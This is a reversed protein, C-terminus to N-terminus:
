KEDKIEEIPHTFYFRAGEKYNPDLWIEGGLRTIIERSIALGLGVGPKHPDSKSFREFLQGEEQSSIGSGSDTISFLLYSEDGEKITSYYLEIFGEETFKNANSLLNLLVQLLRQGDTLLTLPEKPAKFRYEVSKKRLGSFTALAQRCLESLNVPSLKFKVKEAELISFDLVDDILNILLDCNQTIISAALEREREPLSFDSTLNSFGVIANLPTRIEHSINALFAGKVRNSEEAMEKAEKLRISNKELEVRLKQNRIYIATIALIFTLLNVSIVSIIVLYLRYKDVIPDSSNIITSHLPLQSLTIGREKLVSDDFQYRRGHTVFRVSGSKGEGHEIIQTVINSASHTFNPIFGGLAGTGLGAGTLTFLPLDKRGKTVERLSSNALYRGSKSIRWTGVLIASNIPALAIEEKIENLTLYTADLFHYNFPPLNHITRKILAKIAQGGYTNDSLLYIDTTKPYLSKVLEVCRHPSFTYLNGGVLEGQLNMARSHNIWRPSSEEEQDIQEKPLTIGSTSIFSALYPIGKPLSEQSCLAAWAEQGLAIVGKMEMKNVRKLIEEVRGAWLHGDESYSKAHLSEVLVQHPYPYREEMELSFEEIFQATRQVEPNFSTIILFLHEKPEEGYVKPSLTSLLVLLVFLTRFRKM